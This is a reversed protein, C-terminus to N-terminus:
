KSCYRYVVSEGCTESTRYIRCVSGKRLGIWVAQPDQETIKPLNEVSIYWKTLSQIDEPSCIEHKMSLSHTPLNMVFCIYPFVFLKTGKGSVKFLEIKKSIHSTLDGKCIIFVEDAVPLMNLLLNFDNSAQTYKSNNAIICAVVHADGRLKCTRQGECIVYQQTNIKKMFEVQPIAPTALVINQNELCLRLNAYINFM